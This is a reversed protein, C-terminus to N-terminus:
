LGLVISIFTKGREEYSSFQDFSAFGPSLLVQAEEITGALEHAAVVADEFRPCIRVNPVTNLVAGALADAVEGYLVAIEVSSGIARGFAELDGGKSRGGGIWVVPLKMGSVAALAAHFNTAKSDNWYSVDNIERVRQLRHDPLLFANAAEMLPEFPYGETAWYTAVMELNHRHPYDVFPSSENLQKVLELGARTFRSGEDLLEAAELRARLGPGYVAPAGPELCRVLNAKAAFYDSLAPYRDLHDEAFNTWLLANLSLGDSLEAQFSSVEVVAITDPDTAFDTVAESMPLGFNGCAVAKRGSTILADRLLATVTTKGNTGTVGICKGPWEAVGFVLESLCRKGSAQALVRWPHDSAFGPSFVFRDFESVQDAEFIAFDGEDREDFLVVEHGLTEALRRAARGSRGAGFIAISQSM